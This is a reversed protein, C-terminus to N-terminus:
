VLDSVNAPIVELGVMDELTDYIPSLDLDYSDDGYAKDWEPDDYEVIDGNAGTLRVDTIYGGVGLLGAICEEGFEYADEALKYLEDEPIYYTAIAGANNYLFVYTELEPCYLDNGEEIYSYLDNVSNFKM